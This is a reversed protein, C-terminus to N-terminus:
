RRASAPSSVCTFVKGDARIFAPQADPVSSATLAAFLNGDPIPAVHAAPRRVIHEAPM